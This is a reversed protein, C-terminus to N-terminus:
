PQYGGYYKVPSWDPIVPPVAHELNSYDGEAYVPKGNLITLLSHIHKIDDVPVSFYDGSTIVVDAYQGKAIKGKQKEEGSVWASGTTYLQLAEFRTLVDQTPWFQDGGMTKGTTAWYLCIWPNFTSIRTADTGLGVPIGMSLM